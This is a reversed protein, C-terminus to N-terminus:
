EEHWDLCTEINLSPWDPSLSKPHVQKCTLILSIKSTHFISLIVEEGWWGQCERLDRSKVRKRETEVKLTQCSSFQYPGKDRWRNEEFQQQIVHCAWVRGGVRPGGEHHQSGHESSAGPGEKFWVDLLDGVSQGLGIHALSILLDASPLEPKTTTPRNQVWKGSYSHEELLAM